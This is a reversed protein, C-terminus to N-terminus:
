KQGAVAPAAKMPATEVDCDAPLDHSAVEMLDALTAVPKGAISTVVAGAAIRPRLPSDGDVGLVLLGAVQGDASPRNSPIPGLLLGRWRLSATQRQPGTTAVFQRTPRLRISLEKGDRLLVLTSPRDVDASGALLNFHDPDRITSGNLSILLDGSMLRASKAPFSDSDLQSDLDVRDVLVGIPSGIGAAHRQENTPESVTLGFSAYAVPRGQKLSDIESLLRRTVPIAFGIGNAMNQPLIVATNIGIVRGDIDFLPGGSNGPNIEATTQLLDAYLRHERGSLRPLSRGVASIVGVSMCMQGDSALGFPNGLAITWEGRSNRRDPDAFRVSALLHAPVKLVALDRRPDSAVVLAPYVSRDDATVWLQCAEGVVHENTLIYGDPDIIFGTGVVRTTKDLIEQLKAPNMDAPRVADDGADTPVIAASIAVV